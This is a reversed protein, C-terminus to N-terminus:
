FGPSQLREVAEQLSAEDVAAQLRDVPADVISGSEGLSFNLVLLMGAGRDVHAIPKGGIGPRDAGSEGAAIDGGDDPGRRGPRQRRGQGDGEMWVEVVYSEFDLSRRVLSSSGM